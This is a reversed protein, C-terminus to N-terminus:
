STMEIKQPHRRIREQPEFVFIESTFSVGKVNGNKEPLHNKGGLNGRTQRFNERVIVQASNM